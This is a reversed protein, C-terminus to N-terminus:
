QALAEEYNLSVSHSRSHPFLFYCPIFFVIYCAERKKADSTPLTTLCLLIYIPGCTVYQDPYRISLSCPLYSSLMLLCILSIPHSVPISPACTWTNTQLLWFLQDPPKRSPITGEFGSRGILFRTLIHLKMLNIFSHTILYCKNINLASIRPTSNVNSTGSV